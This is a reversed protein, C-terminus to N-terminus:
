KGNGVIPEVPDVVVPPDGDIVTSAIAALEQDSLDRVDRIIRVDRKEVVYGHLMSLLHLCGRAATVNDLDLSMGYVRLTENVVWDKTVNTRETLDADFKAVLAQVTPRRLLKCATIKAHTPSYGAATAARKGNRDVTYEEAFRSLKGALNEPNKRSM